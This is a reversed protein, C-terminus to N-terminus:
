PEGGDQGDKIDETGQGEIQRLRPRRDFPRGYPNIQGETQHRSLNADSFETETRELWVSFDDEDEDDITNQMTRLDAKIQEEPNDPDLKHLFARSVIAFITNCIKGIREIDFDGNDQGADWTSVAVKKLQATLAQDISKAEIDFAFPIEKVEEKVTYSAWEELSELIAHSKISVLRNSAIETCATMTGKLTADVAADNTIALGILTAIAESLNPAVFVKEQDGAEDIETDKATIKLPFHGILADMQLFQWRIFEPISRITVTGGGEKETMLRPVTVGTSLDDAGVAAAIKDLGECGFDKEALKELAATIRDCEEGEPEETCSSTTLGFYIEELLRGARSLQSGAYKLDATEGFTM